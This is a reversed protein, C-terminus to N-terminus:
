REAFFFSGVVEVTVGSAIKDSDENRTCCLLEEM